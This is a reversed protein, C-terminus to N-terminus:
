KKAFLAAFFGDMHHEHPFVRFFGQEDILERGWGPAIEKLDELRLDKNDELCSEVVGENEEKSITCTVYLMKGGNKLLPATRNM